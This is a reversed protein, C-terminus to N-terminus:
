PPDSRDHTAPDVRCQPSHVAQLVNDDLCLTDRLIALVSWADAIALHEHRLHWYDGDACVDHRRLFKRRDSAHRLSFPRGPAATNASLPPSSHSGGQWPMPFREVPM